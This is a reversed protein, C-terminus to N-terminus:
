SIVEGTDGRAIEGTDGRAIEGTDGRAIEGIDGSVIEGIDGSVIEGGDRGVGEPVSLVDGDFSKRGLSHQLAEFCRGHPDVRRGVPDVADDARAIRALPRSRREDSGNALGIGVDRHDDM